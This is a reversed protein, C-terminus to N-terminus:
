LGYWARRCEEIFVFEASNRHCRGAYTLCLLLLVVLSNRWANLRAAKQHAKSRAAVLQKAEAQYKAENIEARLVLRSIQYAVPSPLSWAATSSQNLRSSSSALRDASQSQLLTLNEDTLRSLLLPPSSPFDIGLELGLGVPTEPIRSPFEPLHQSSTSPVSYNDGQLDASALGGEVNWHSLDVSLQSRAPPQSQMVDVTTRRELQM